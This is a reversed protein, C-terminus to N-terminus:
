GSLIYFGAFINFYIAYRDPFHWEAVAEAVYGVERMARLARDIHPLLSRRIVSLYHRHFNEFPKEILFTSSTPGTPLFLFYAFFLSLLCRKYHVNKCQTYLCCM